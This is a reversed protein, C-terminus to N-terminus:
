LSILAYVRGKEQILTNTNAETHTHCEQKMPEPEANTNYYGHQKEVRHQVHQNGPLDQENGPIQMYTMAM